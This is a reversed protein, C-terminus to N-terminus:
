SASYHIVLQQNEESFHQEDTFRQMKQSRLWTIGLIQQQQRTTIM